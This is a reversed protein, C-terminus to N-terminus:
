FEAEGGLFRTAFDAMCYGAVRKAKFIGEIHRILREDEIPNTRGNYSPPDTKKFQVFTCQRDNESGIDGNGSSKKMKRHFDKMAKCVGVESPNPFPAMDLTIM